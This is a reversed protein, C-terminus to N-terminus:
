DAQGVRDRITDAGDAGGGADFTLEELAQAVEEDLLAKIEEPSRLPAVRPAVRAPINLLRSRVKGYEAAVIAVVDDIAVVRGLERDYQLQRLHAAFSEKHRKAAAETAFVGSVALAAAEAALEEDADPEADIHADEPPDSEASHAIRNRECWETGVLDADITGDPLTELHGQKIKRRVLGDSCKERRAFERISIGIM